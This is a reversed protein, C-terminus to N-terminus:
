GCTYSSDGDPDTCTYTVGFVDTFTFSAPPQGPAGSPGVPGAPGPVTSDSGAAGDKGDQGAPGAPGQPGAPGPVTSDKGNQGDAGAPGTGGPAGSPGAGGATGAVGTSGTAGAPGTSGPAGPLGDTGDVGNVPGSPTPVPIPQAGNKKLRVNAKNLASKTDQALQSVAGLDTQAQQIQAAQRTDDAANTEVRVVLWAVTALGVVVGIALITMATTPRIRRLLTTM